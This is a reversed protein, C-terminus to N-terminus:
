VALFGFVTFAILGIGFTALEIIWLIRVPNTNTSTGGATGVGTIASLSLVGFILSVVFAGWSLKLLWLDGNVDATHSNSTALTLSLGLIGSSLALVQNVSNKALSLESETAL